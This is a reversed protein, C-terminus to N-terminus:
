RLLDLVRPNYFSECLAAAAVCGIALMLHGLSSQAVRPMVPHRIPYKFLAKSMYVAALAALVYALGELLLHPFLAAAAIVVFGFGSSDTTELGRWILVTLVYGWVCANWALAFLAGISRYVFSLATVCALVVLNHQLISLFSDFRRTLITDAHLHAAELAFGFAPEVHDEGFYLAAAVYAVLIGAFMALFSLATRRNARASPINQELISERNEALLDSCRDGLAIAVLFVSVSGADDFGLAVCVVLSIVASVLAQSFLRGYRPWTGPGLGPMFLSPIITATGAGGGLEAM